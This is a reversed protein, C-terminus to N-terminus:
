KMEITGACNRWSGLARGRRRDQDAAQLLLQPIASSTEAHPGLSLYLMPFCFPSTCPLGPNSDQGEWVRATHGQVLSQVRTETERSHSPGIPVGQSSMRLVQMLCHHSPSRDLGARLLHRTFLAASTSTLKNNDKPLVQDDTRLHRGELEVSALPPGCPYNEQSKPGKAGPRRSEQLWQGQQPTGYLPQPTLSSPLPLWVPGAWM